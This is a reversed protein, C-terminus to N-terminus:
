TALIKLGGTLGNLDGLESKVIKAHPFYKAYAHYTKDLADYFDDWKKTMSGGLVIMDPQWAITLSYLGSALDRGYKDWIDKDECDRPQIRYEKLFATGSCLSEFSGKVGDIPDEIKSSNDIVIHGPEYNFHHTDAKKNRIITGGVGTSITIYAINEYDKAYPAYSEALGALEADNFIQISPNEIGTIAQPTLNNIWKIHPASVAIKNKYDVKGAIGLVIKEIPQNVKDLAEKIKQQAETQSKPTKFKGISDFKQCDKTFGIRTNTGGMDISINM